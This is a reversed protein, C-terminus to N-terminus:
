ESGQIAQNVQRLLGDLRALSRTAASILPRSSSRGSASIRRRRTSLRSTCWGRCIIQSPPPPAIVAISLRRRRGRPPPTAAPSWSSLFCRQEPSPPPPSSLLLLHRRRRGRPPPPPAAPSRSSSRLATEPPPIRRQRTTSIWRYSSPLSKGLTQLTNPRYIQREPGIWIRKQAACPNSERTTPKGKLAPFLAPIGAM